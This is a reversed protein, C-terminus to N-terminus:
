LGDGQADTGGETKDRDLVPVNERMAHLTTEKDSRCIM